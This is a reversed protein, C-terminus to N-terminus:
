ATPKESYERAIADHENEATEDDADHVRHQIQWAASFLRSMLRMNLADAHEAHRGYHWYAWSVDLHNAYGCEDAAHRLLADLDVDSTTRLLQDLTVTIPADWNDTVCM